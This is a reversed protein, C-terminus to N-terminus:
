TIKMTLPTRRANNARNAITTKRQGLELRMTAGPQQQKVAYRSRYSSDKQSADKDPRGNAAACNPQKKTKDQLGGDQQKAQKNTKHPFAMRSHLDSSADRSHKEENTQKQKKNTPAPNSEGTVNSTSTCGRKLRVMTTSPHTQIDPLWQM